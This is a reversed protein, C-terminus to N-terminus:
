LARQREHRDDACIEDDEDIQAVLQAIQEPTTEDVDWTIVIRQGGPRESREEHPGDHGGPLQCRITAENDGYDDVIYLRANCTAADRPDM